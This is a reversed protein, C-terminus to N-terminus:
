LCMNRIASAMFKSIEKMEMIVIDDKGVAVLLYYDGDKKPPQIIDMQKNATEKVTFLASGRPIQLVNIPNDEDECDIVIRPKDLEVYEARYRGCWM